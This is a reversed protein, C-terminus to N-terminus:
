MYKKAMMAEKTFHKNLGKVWKFFQTTRQRMPSNLFEKYIRSQLTEASICKAFTTKWDIGKGKM